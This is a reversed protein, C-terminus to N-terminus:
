LVAQGPQPPVQDWGQTGGAPELTVPELEEVPQGRHEVYRQHRHERHHEVPQHHLGPHLPRIARRPTVSCVCEPFSTLSAIRSAAYRSEAVFIKFSM